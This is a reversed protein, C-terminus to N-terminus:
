IGANATAHEVERDPLIVKRWAAGDVTGHGHRESPLHATRVM